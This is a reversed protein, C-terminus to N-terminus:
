VEQHELLQWSIVLIIVVMVLASGLPRMVEASEGQVYVRALEALSYFSMYSGVDMQAAFSSFILVLASAVGAYLQNKFVVSFLVIIASSGAFFMCYCGFAKLFDSINGVEKFLTETYLYCTLSGVSLSFVSATVTTIYKSLVFELRSVPKSLIMAATGREKELAICGMFLLIFALLGLQDISKFFQLYSDVPQLPPLGINLTSKLIAQLNKTLLPSLVGFLLFVLSLLLLKQTKVQENIEREIMEIM